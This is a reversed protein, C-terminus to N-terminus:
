GRRLLRAAMQLREVREPARRSAAHAAAQAVAAKAEGDGEGTAHWRALAEAAARVRQEFGEPLLASRVGGAGARLERLLVGARDLLGARVAEDAERAAAEAAEGWAQYAAAPLGPGGLREDLRAEAVADAPPAVIVGAAVGLPVLDPA